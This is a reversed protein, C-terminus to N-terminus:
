KNVKKKYWLLPKNKYDCRLSVSGTPSLHTLMVGRGSGALMNILLIGMSNISTSEVM